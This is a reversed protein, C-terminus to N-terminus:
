QGEDSWYLYNLDLKSIEDVSLCTNHPRYFKKVNIHVDSMRRIIQKKSFIGCILGIEFPETAAQMEDGKTFKYNKRYKEPYVTENYDQLWM